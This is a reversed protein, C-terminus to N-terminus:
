SWPSDLRPIQSRPIDLTLTRSSSLLLWHSGTQFWACSREALAQSALVIHHSVNHFVSGELELSSRSRPLFASFGTVAVCVPFILMAQPWSGERLRKSTAHHMGYRCSNPRYHNSAVCTARRPSMLHCTSCVQRCQGLPHSTELKSVLFRKTM